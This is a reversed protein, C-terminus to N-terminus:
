EAGPRQDMEKLFAAALKPEGRLNEGRLSCYHLFRECMAHASGSTAHIERIRRALSRLRAAEPWDVYAAVIPSNAFLGWRGAACERLCQSLLREFESELEALDKAEIRERKSM